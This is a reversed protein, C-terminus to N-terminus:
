VIPKDALHADQGVAESINKFGDRELLKTLGNNIKRVILPGGYIFGTFIQIASAGLKIKRYADEATFVGGVGIIKLRGQSQQYIQKIVADSQRQLMQGSIGGPHSLEVASSRFPLADRFKILNTAIIGTINHELCTAVITALEEPNYDPGIKLFIDKNIHHKKLTSAIIGILEEVFYVQSFSSCSAVSPCGLNLTIYDCFKHVELLSQIYNESAKEVTTGNTPTISVGYPIPHSPLKSMADALYAAGKNELGYFVILGKDKPIRWLRPRPNGGQAAYSVSGFEAFSFGLMAYALPAEFERDFGAALGVPSGLELSGLKTILRPDDSALFKHLINYIPKQLSVIRLAKVVWHHINEPDTLLFLIPRLIKEYIMSSIKLLLLIVSNTMGAFAPIWLCWVALQPNWITTQFSLLTIWKVPSRINVISCNIFGWIGFEM